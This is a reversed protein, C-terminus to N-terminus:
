HTTPFTYSWSNHLLGAHWVRDFAKSIDLKVAETAGSSNFVM